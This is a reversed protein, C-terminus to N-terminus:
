KFNGTLRGSAVNRHAQPPPLGTEELKGEAEIRIAKGAADKSGCRNARVLELLRRFRKLPASRTGPEPSRHSQRWGLELGAHHPNTTGPQRGWDGTWTGSLPHGEQAFATSTAIFICLFLARRWM